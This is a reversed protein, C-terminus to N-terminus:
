ILTLQACCKVNLLFNSLYLLGAGQQCNNIIFAAALCNLLLM